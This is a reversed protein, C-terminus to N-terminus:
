ETLLLTNGTRQTAYVADTVAAVLDNQAIVSGSVNVNVMVPSSTPRGFNPLNAYDGEAGLQLEFLTKANIGIDVLQDQLEPTLNQLYPKGPGEGIRPSAPYPGPTVTSPTVAGPIFTSKGDLSANININYKGEILAKLRAAVNDLNDTFTMQPKLAALTDIAAKSTAFGAATLLQLMKELNM